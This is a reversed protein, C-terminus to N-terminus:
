AATFEARLEQETCPLYRVKGFSHDLRLITIQVGRNLTLDIMLVDPSYYAHLMKDSTQVFYTPLKVAVEM